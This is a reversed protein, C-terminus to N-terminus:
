IYLIVKRLTLCHLGCSTRTEASRSPEIKVASVGLFQYSVLLKLVAQSLTSSNRRSLVENYRTFSYWIRLQPFRGDLEM